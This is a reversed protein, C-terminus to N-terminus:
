LFSCVLSCFSFHDIFVQSHQYPSSAAVNSKTQNVENQAPSTEDASSITVLILAGKNAMRYIQYM